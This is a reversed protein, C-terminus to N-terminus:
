RVVELWEHLFHASRNFANGFIILGVKRWAHLASM